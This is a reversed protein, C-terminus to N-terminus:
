CIRFLRKTFGNISRRLNTPQAIIVFYHRNIPDAIQLIYALFSAIVISNLPEKVEIFLFSLTPKQFPRKRAVVIFAYM